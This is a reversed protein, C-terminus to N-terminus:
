KFDFEVKPAASAEKVAEFRVRESFGFVNAIINSPFFRIKKNLSNVAENYQNRSYGIRNETGELSDHLKQFSESSRINPYNEVVVLLRSIASDFQGAASFQQASGSPSGAYKSRAEALDTFIGKELDAIGQTTAVLSPILDFRRQYQVDIDALATKSNEDLNVLSNYSVMTWLVFIILVGIIALGVIKGTSLPTPNM